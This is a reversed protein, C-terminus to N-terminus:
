TGLLRALFGRRPTPAPALDPTPAMIREVVTRLTRREEELVLLTARREEEARDLRVRLDDAEGAARDARKSESEARKAEADARAREASLDVQLREVEHRLTEVEPLLAEKPHAAGQAGHHAPQTLESKQVTLASHALYARRWTELDEPTIRWQNRNDRTARLRQSKIARMITWRTTGAVQAAAEPSMHASM